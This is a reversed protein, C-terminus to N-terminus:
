GTAKPKKPSTAQLAHRIAGKGVTLSLLVQFLREALLMVTLASCIFLPWAMLGLQHQLQQLSEM